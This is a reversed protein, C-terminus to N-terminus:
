FQNWKEYEAAHDPDCFPLGWDEGNDTVPTGAIPNHCWTCSPTEDRKVSNM